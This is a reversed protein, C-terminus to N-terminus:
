DAALWHADRGASKSRRVDGRRELVTLNRYVAEIVVPDGFRDRIDDRLQATSKSQGTASLVAMLQQRLREAPTPDPM